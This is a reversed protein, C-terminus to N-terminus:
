YAGSAKLALHEPPEAERNQVGQSSLTIHPESSKSRHSFSQLIVLKQNTPIGGWSPMPNSYINCTQM